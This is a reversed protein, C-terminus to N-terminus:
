CGTSARLTRCAQHLRHPSLRTIRRRFATRPLTHLNDLKISATAQCRTTRRCDLGLESVLDWRYPDVGALAGGRRDTAFRCDRPARSSCQGNVPLPPPLGVAGGSWRELAWPGPARWPGERRRDLTPRCLGPRRPRCSKTSPAARRLLESRDIDLRRAWADARDVDDDDARFSVM